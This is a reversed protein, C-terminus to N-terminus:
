FSFAVGVIATPSDADPNFVYASIEWAGLTVAGFFGRQIDFETRYVKTRQVTLGGRFWGAPSWGLESWTYLFSDSSSQADFVYETESYVDLKRWTLSGAYGIAAGATKGFVAGAMPTIEFTVDEGISFTRGIWMSGTDLDEYNFRAELHLRGRDVEITPQVFTDQDPVAYTFLSASGSWETASGGTNSPAPTAATQAGAASACLVALTCLRAPLTRM